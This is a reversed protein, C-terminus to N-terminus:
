THHQLVNNARSIPTAQGIGHHPRHYNYHHLWHELLDARQASHEYVFGYAWERLASQIFREAKGNTQPRYHRTYRQRIGLRLCEAKFDASRFASGNDTLLRDIAINLSAYYALAARLFACASTRTQDPYLASFAIRSHDDVAVFLHEYGAGRVHDRPDGTVRHGTARIHALQKIDIHLMDGPAAHEYRQVPPPPDIAAMRSLGARALIRSVSAASVNMTQVIRGHTLRQRRLDIVQERLATSLCRPSQHPRSSRDHLGAEGEALYRTHWKGATKASVAWAAAAAQATSGACMAQVMELRRVFTLRANKHINM